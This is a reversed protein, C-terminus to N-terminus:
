FISFRRGGGRTWRPPPARSVDCRREGSARARVPTARAPIKKPAVARTLFVRGVVLVDRPVRTSAFRRFDNAGRARAFRRRAYPYRKRRAVSRGNKFFLARKWSTRVMLGVRAVRGGRARARVPTASVPTKEARSRGVTKLFFVRAYEYSREFSRWTHARGGRAIAGV